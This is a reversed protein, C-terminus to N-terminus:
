FLTSALLALAAVTLTFSNGNPPSSNDESEFEDTWGQITNGLKVYNEYCANGDIRFIEIKMQIKKLVTSM